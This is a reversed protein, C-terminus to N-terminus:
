ATIRYVRGRDETVSSDVHLGLKKKLAGSIAGRVSHSQWGTAKVAEEITAGTKRQLLGVLVAIKTGERVPQKNTRSQNTRAAKQKKDPSPKTEEGEAEIAVAKLGAKTIALAFRAGDKTERWCADELAAPKEVVLKRKLLSGVVRAVSAKNLRITKPLPLVLGAKHQAAANLIVLHTDTLKM